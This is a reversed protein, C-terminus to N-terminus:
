SSFGKEKKKELYQETLSVQNIVLKFKEYTYVVSTLQFLIFSIYWVFWASM